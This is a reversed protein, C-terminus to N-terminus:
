KETSTFKVKLFVEINSFSQISDTRGDIMETVRASPLSEELAKKIKADFTDWVPDMINDGKGVKSLLAKVSFSAVPSEDYEISEKAVRNNTKHPLQKPDKAEEADVIEEEKKTSKPVFYPSRQSKEGIRNVADDWGSELLDAAVLSKLENRRGYTRIFTRVRNEAFPLNEKCWSQWDGHAVKM